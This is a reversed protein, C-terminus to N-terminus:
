ANNVIYKLVNNQRIITLEYNVFFEHFYQAYKQNPIIISVLKQGRVRLATKCVVKKKKLDQWSRKRRLKMKGTKKQFDMKTVNENKWNKEPLGNEDCKWKELKERSTLNERLNEWFERVIREFNGNGEM